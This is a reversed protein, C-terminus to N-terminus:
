RRVWPFPCPWHPERHAGALAQLRRGHHHSECDVLPSLLLGQAPVPVAGPFSPVSIAPLLIRPVQLGISSAVLRLVTRANSGSGPERIGQCTPLHPQYLWRCGKQLAVQIGTSRLRGEARGRGARGLGWGPTDPQATHLADPGLSLHPSGCDVGVHSYIPLRWHSSM